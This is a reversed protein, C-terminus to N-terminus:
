KHPDVSCCLDVIMSLKRNVEEDSSFKTGVQLVMIQAFEVRLLAIGVQM